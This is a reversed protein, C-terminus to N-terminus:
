SAKSERSRQKHPNQSGEGSVFSSSLSRSIEIELKGRKVRGIGSWETLEDRFAGGLGGFTNDIHHKVVDHVFSYDHRLKVQQFPASRPPLNDRGM